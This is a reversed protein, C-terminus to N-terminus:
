KGSVQISLQKPKQLPLIKCAAAKCGLLRVNNDPIKM